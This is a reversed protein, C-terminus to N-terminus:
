RLFFATHTNDPHTAAIGPACFKLIPTNKHGKEVDYGGCGFVGHDGGVLRYLVARVAVLALRRQLPLEDTHEALLSIFIEGDVLLRIQHGVEAALQLQQIVTLEGVALPLPKEGVGDGGGVLVDHFFGPLDLLVAHLHDPPVVAGALVDGEDILLVDM